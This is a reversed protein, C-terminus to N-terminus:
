GKGNCFWYMFQMCAMMAGLGAVIISVNAAVAKDLTVSYGTRIGYRWLGVLGATLMALGTLGLIQM